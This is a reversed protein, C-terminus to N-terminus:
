AAAARAVDPLVRALRAVAEELQGPDRLFCLRLHAEGGPGFASGPALGVAARDVLELALRRTDPRGLVRFFAYFAAPPPPLDVVNTAALGACVIDRGRRARAIQEAVLEEGQELAAVAGRQLFAAVGSTSYQVLNEVVQGLEPPTELWGVRWGTMAWNKSFTQVFMVRDEPEMVDRFSPSRGAAVLAPDHVFRAYIEDAIIWLGHRRAVALIGALEERTATWGTPNAPTNILMARTRPTVAAELREPDLRWGSPGVTLPVPRPIAGTVRAAGDFNPWAPSPVLVEDGTGAVMRMAMQTAHMGGVTVTFREAPVAKGWVRVHYRAIAERLEPIGRQWTYFTEGAALSRQAAEIVFAPTPLDGEGVYLPIMGERGRGYTFVEVIGSTPAEAAEPRIPFPAHSSTM